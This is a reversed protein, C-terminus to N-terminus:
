GRFHKFSTPSKQWNCVSDEMAQMGIKLKTDLKGLIEEIVEPDTSSNPDGDVLLRAGRLPGTAGRLYTSGPTMPALNLRGLLALFDFKALRGFRLVRMERYAADFIKHPDNGTKKILSSFWGSPSGNVCKIFSAVVAVTGKESDVKLSEYKRHNGFAGGIQLHNQDMWAAFAGFNSSVRQWTWRVKGLGSYIDRLRQWGHKGHKGVHTSLFILWIAEDIKGKSVFLIAAREPDFMQDNPDARNSSIDRGIIIRTYDQRRLSAIMQMALADRATPLAIGVLTHESASFQDLAKTLRTLAKKRTPWM